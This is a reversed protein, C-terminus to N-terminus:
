SAPGSAPWNDKMGLSDPRRGFEGPHLPRLPRRAEPRRSPVSRDPIEAVVPRAQFRPKKKPQEFKMAAPLILQAEASDDASAARGLGAPVSREQVHPMPVPRAATRAAFGLGALLLLVVAVSGRRILAMLFRVRMTLRFRDEDALRLDRRLEQVGVRPHRADNAQLALRYRAEDAERLARRLDQVSVRPQRRDASHMSNVLQRQMPLDSEVRGSQTQRM